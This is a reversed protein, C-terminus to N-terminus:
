FCVYAHNHGTASHGFCFGADNRCIHFHDALRGRKQPDFIALPNM